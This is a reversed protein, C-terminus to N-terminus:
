FDSINLKIVNKSNETLKKQSNLPPLTNYNQIFVICIFELSFTM